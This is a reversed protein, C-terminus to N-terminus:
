PTKSWDSFKSLVLWVRNSWQAGYKKDKSLLLDGLRSAGVVQWRQGEYTVFLQQQGIAKSYLQFEYHGLRCLNLFYHMYILEDHGILHYTTGLFDDVHIGGEADDASGLPSIMADKYIHDLYVAAMARDAISDNPHQVKLQALIARLRDGNPLQADDAKVLVDRMRSDAIAKLSLRIGSLSAQFNELADGLELGSRVHASLTKSTFFTFYHINSSRDTLLERLPEIHVDLLTKTLEVHKQAIANNTM